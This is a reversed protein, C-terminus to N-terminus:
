AVTPEVDALERVLMWNVQCTRTESAGNGQAVFPYKANDLYETLGTAKAPRAVDNFSGRLNGTYTTGTGTGTDADADSRLGLEWVNFDTTLDDSGIALEQLTTETTADIQRANWKTPTLRTVLQYGEAVGPAQFYQGAQPIMNAGGFGIMAQLASSPKLSVRLAKNATFTYSGARLYAVASETGTRRLTAVGGSVSPQLPDYLLGHGNWVVNEAESTFSGNARAVLDAASIPAYRGVWAHNGSGTSLFSPFVTVNGSVEVVAPRYHEHNWASSSSNMGAVQWPYQTWTLGDTSSYLTLVYNTTSMALLFYKSQSASWWVSMHWIGKATTSGAVNNQM